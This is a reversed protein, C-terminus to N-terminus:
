KVTDVGYKLFTRVTKVIEEPGNVIAGFSFEPYPLHPLTEDALGGPVTIEQSAALYRPGKIQGSPIAHRIVGDLRAKAPGAGVCSTWGMDLYREAIHACWLIHEEPPMRQIANLAPQDNWAFHTHAETMGPMLTASAADIVTIGATAIARVGKAVRAIRNGQVLVEGSYPPAGSGDIIRVNTFLVNPM